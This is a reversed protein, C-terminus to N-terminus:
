SKAPLLYLDFFFRPTYKISQPLYSQFFIPSLMSTMMSALFILSEFISMGRSFIRDVIKRKRRRGKAFLLSSESYKDCIKFAKFVDSPDSQLDAHTWGIYIGKANDLGSKIGGGYGLNKKLHLFSCFNYQRTISNLLDLTGDTSGNDVLILEFKGSESAYKQEFDALCESFKELLLPINDKENFCPIVISYKIEESTTM